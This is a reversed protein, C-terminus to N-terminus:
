AYSLAENIMNQMEDPTVNRFSPINRLIVDLVASYLKEFIDQEMEAFSISDAVPEITGDLHIVTTYYGATKILDKRFTEFSKNVGGSAEPEWNKYAFTIMDFFKKHFGYNRVGSFEGVM